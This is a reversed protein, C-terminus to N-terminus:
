KFSDIKGEEEVNKKGMEDIEQAINKNEQIGM